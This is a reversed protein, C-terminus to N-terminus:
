SYLNFIYLATKVGVVKAHMVMFEYVVWLEKNARKLVDKEEFGDQM